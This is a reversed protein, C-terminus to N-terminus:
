NSPIFCPCLYYYAKNHTPPVRPSIWITNQPMPCNTYTSCIQIYMQTCLHVLKKYKM